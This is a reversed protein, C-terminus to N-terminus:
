AACRAGDQHHGVDNQNRLESSIDNTQGKRNGHDSLRQVLERQYPKFGGM